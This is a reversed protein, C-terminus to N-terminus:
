QYNRNNLARLISVREENIGLVRITKFHFVEIYDVGSSEGSINYSHVKIIGEDFSQITGYKINGNYDEVSYGIILNNNLAFNIFSLLLLDDDELTIKLPDYNYHKILKELIELQNDYIEVRVIDDIKGLVYGAFKGNYLYDEFIFYSEDVKLVYGTLLTPGGVNTVTIEIITHEQEAKKILEFL